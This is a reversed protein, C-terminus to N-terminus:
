RRLLATFNGQLDGPKGLLQWLAGFTCCLRRGDALVHQLGACPDAPDQFSTGQGAPDIVPLWRLQRWRRGHSRCRDLGQALGTPRPLPTTTLRPSGTPISQM